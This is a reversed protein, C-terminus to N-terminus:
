HERLMKSTVLKSAMLSIQLCWGYDIMVPYSNLFTVKVEFQTSPKQIEYHGVNLHGNITVLM